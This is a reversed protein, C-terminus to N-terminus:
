KKVAELQRKTLAIALQKKLKSITNKDSSQDLKAELKKNTLDLRLRDIENTLVPKVKM